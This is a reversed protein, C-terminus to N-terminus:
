RGGDIWDLAECVLELASMRLLALSLTTDSQRDHELLRAAAHLRIAAERDAPSSKGM